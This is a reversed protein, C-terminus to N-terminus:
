VLFLLPSAFYYYVFFSCACCYLIIKLTLRQQKLLNLSTVIIFAIALVPLYKLYEFFNSYNSDSFFLALAGMFITAPLVWIFLCLAAFVNGGIKIAAMVLLQTSTPGPLLQAVSYFEKFEQETFYNRDIVFHKLFISLHSQQAGIATISILFIRKLFNTKSKM